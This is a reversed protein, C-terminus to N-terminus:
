SSWFFLAEEKEVWEWGGNLGVQCGLLVEQVWWGAGVWVVGRLPGVEMTPSIKPLLQAEVVGIATTLLFGLRKPSKTLEAMPPLTLLVLTGRLFAVRVDFLLENEIPFTASENGLDVAPALEPWPHIM